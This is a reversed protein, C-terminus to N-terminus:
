QDRLWADTIAWVFATYYAKQNDKTHAEGEFVYIPIMYDQIEVDEFYAIYIDRIIVNKVALKKFETFPDADKVRFEVMPARGSTVEEWAVDIPKSPYTASSDLIPNWTTYYVLPSEVARDSPSSLYVSVNAKKNPGFVPYTQDDFDLNRFLDVKVLQASNLSNAQQLSGHENIEVLLSEQKGNELTDPLLGKGKLMNKARVTAEPQSYTEGRPLIERMRMGDTEITFNGSAINIKLKRTSDVEEWLYETKSLEKQPVKFGFSIALNRARSGSLLDPVPDTIEFVKLTNPLRPLGGDLTDLSYSVGENDFEKGEIVPYSVKGFALTPGPLPPPNLHKYLAIAGKIAYKGTYYTVVILAFLTVGRKIQEQTSALSV